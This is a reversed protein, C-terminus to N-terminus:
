EAAVFRAFLAGMAPVSLTAGDDDDDREAAAPPLPPLSGDALVVAIQGNLWLLDSGLSASELRWLEVAAQRPAAPLTVSEAAGGLNLLLCTRAQKPRRSKYAGAVLSADVVGAHCYARLSPAAGEM